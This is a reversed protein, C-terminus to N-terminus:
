VIEKIPMDLKWFALSIRNEIKHIDEPGAPEDENGNKLLWTQPTYIIWELTGATNPRDEIELDIMKGQEMYRLRDVSLIEVKWGLNSEVAKDGLTTLIEKM